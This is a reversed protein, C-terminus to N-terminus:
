AASINELKICRRGSDENCEDIIQTASNKKNSDLDASIINEYLVCIEKYDDSLQMFAEILVDYKNRLKQYPSINHPNARWFLDNLRINRFANALEYDDPVFIPIEDGFWERLLEEYQEGMEYSGLSENLHSEIFGVNNYLCM